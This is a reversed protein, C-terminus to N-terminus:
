TLVFTELMEDARDAYEKQYADLISIQLQYIKHQRTNEIFKYFKRVAVQAETEESEILCIKQGADLDDTVKQSLIKGANRKANEIVSEFNSDSSVILNAQAQRLEDADNKGFEKSYAEFAFKSNEDIPSIFGEPKVIRFNEREIIEREFASAASKKIRTSVYVMLGVLIIGLFLIEM